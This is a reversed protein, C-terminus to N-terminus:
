FNYRLQAQALILYSIKSEEASSQVWSENRTYEAQFEAVLKPTFNYSANSRAYVKTNESLKQDESTGDEEEVHKTKRTYGWGAGFNIVLDNELRLFWKLIQIGRKTPLRYTATADDGIEFLRTATSGSRVFCRETPVRKDTYYAPLGADDPCLGVYVTDGRGLDFTDLRPTKEYDYGWGISYKVDNGFSWNGHTKFSLGLLPQFRLNRNEEDSTQVHPHIVFTKEWTTTHTAVVSSFLKGLGPVKNAFNALQLNTSISPDTISTDVNTPDSWYEVWSKQWRWSPNVTLQLGPITFSTNAGLRYSRTASLASRDVHSSDISRDSDVRFGDLYSDPDDLRWPEYQGMGTKSRSGTVLDVPSRWSSEDGLGAQWRWWEAQDLEQQRHAFGLTQRVGSVRADVGYEFGVSNFRWKDFVGKTRGVGKDWSDPGINQLTRLLDSFNLSTNASFGDQQDMRWFQHVLTDRTSDPHIVVYRQNADRSAGASSSFSTGTTLFPLIKPSFDAKWSFSRRNENRLIGLSQGVSDRPDPSPDMTTDLSFIRPAARWLHEPNFDEAENVDNWARDSGVSGSFRLFDLLQWDSSLGHHVSASREFIRAPVKYRFCSASDDPNPCATDWRTALVTDEDPDLSTRSHETYDLDMLTSTIKSPWPQIGMGKVFPPLWKTKATGFPRWTPTSSPSFDYDVQLGQVNSTDRAEPSLRGTETWSWAVTPRAFLTNVLAGKVTGSQDRQRAWNSSLGRSVDITQYFKSRSRNRDATDRDLGADWWDTFMEGLGDKTLSVDSGPQAWPRKLGASAKANLPLQAGWSEPLFKALNLRGSTALSVTSAQQSLKPHDEGMKVFDGETYEASASLDLLDAMNTQASARLATGLARDPGELRLDNVWIEGSRPSSNSSDSNARVWFRVWDVQSLSPEGVVMISDRRVTADGFPVAGLAIKYSASDPVGASRRKAKLRSLESLAIQVKNRSWNDRMLSGRLNADDPCNRGGGGLPCDLSVPSFSYEYYPASTSRWDGSGYQIGLRVPTDDSLSNEGAHYVLLVLDKYMTFDKASTFSRVAFGTDARGAAGSFGFDPRLRSYDLKLSQEVQVAGSSADKSEPVDWSVYRGADDQTNVVSINLRSSDLSFVTDSSQYSGTITSDIDSPEDNGDMHGGGLWQNGVLAVRAIQVRDELSNAGTSPRLGTYVVRAYGLSAWDAGKGARYLTDTLPIRYLRWGNRLYQFPTRNRGGLRISFRDFNDTVDLTSNKNLDETDFFTGTQGDVYKNNGETGNISAAPDNSEVDPSYKDGDPDVSLSADISTGSCNTFCDWSTAVEGSDAIGDLGLDHIATGTASGSADVDEGDLRGNPANGAITLDESIQGFDFLLVGGTGHAVVELYRAQSNDATGTSFSRMVGGWSNGVYGHDNPRLRFQLVNQRSTAADGDDYNPYINVLATQGNSSWVFEGKRKWSDEGWELGLPFDNSAPLIPGEPSSAQYWNSRGIPIGTEQRASEFDDVLAYGETNPDHYSQAGELELKWKSEGTPKVLPIRDAVDTLWDADGALTMNAGWLWALNPERDLQPRPDTVTESRYLLTAGLKSGTGVWPIAWDLRAGAVTRTELSFFPTCEYDVEIEASPDKARSSILYITGTSYNVDYDVGRELTTSGNLTLVESGQSIDMCNTGSVNGSSGIEIKDSKGKATIEIQFRPTYTSGTVMALSSDYLIARGRNRLPEIEPFILTGHAWDFLEADDVRLKGTASDVFGFVKVWPTGTSDATADGQSGSRERIVLEVNGRDGAAVSPLKYYRNRLQVYRLESHDITALDRLLVLEATKASTSVSGFKKGGSTTWAAGIANETASGRPNIRVVGKDWWWDSGESLLRWTEGASTVTNTALGTTDYVRAQGTYWPKWEPKASKESGSVRQFLRLDGPAKVGSASLRNALWQKRYDYSLFLDRPPDAIANDLFTTKTETAGRGIKQSQREGKEAGGVVTLDVDGFRMRAMLGILGTAAYNYGTLTSGPLNLAIQGFAAEQLIDDETDEPKEGAYRVQLMQNQNAGFGEETWNLTVTILRGITGTLFINPIQEPIIDPVRNATGQEEEISTWRSEARLSLAYSGTLTLAPKAMGLRKAWDPIKMPLEYRNGAETVSDRFGRMSDLERAWGRDQGSMALDDLYDSLEAYHAQWLITSDLGWTSDAPLYRVIDVSRNDFGVIYETVVPSRPTRLLGGRPSSEDFPRAPEPLPVFKRGLDADGISRVPGAVVLAAALYAVTHRSRGRM